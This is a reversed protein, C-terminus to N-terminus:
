TAYQGKVTYVFHNCSAGTYVFLLLDHSDSGFSGQTPIIFNYKCLYELTTSLPWQTGGLPLPCCGVAIITLKWDNTKLRYDQTKSDWLPRLPGFARLCLGTSFMEKFFFLHIVRFRCRACYPQPSLTLIAIGRQRWRDRDTEGECKQWNWGKWSIFDLTM